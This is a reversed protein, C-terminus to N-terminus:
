IRKERSAIKLPPSYIKKLVTPVILKSNESSERSINILYHDISLSKQYYMKENFINKKPFYFILNKVVYEIMVQILGYNLGM